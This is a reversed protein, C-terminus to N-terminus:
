RLSSCVLHMCHRQITNKQSDWEHALAGPTRLKRQDLQIEYVPSREGPILTQSVTVNKYFKKIPASFLNRFSVANLHSNCRLCSRQFTRM